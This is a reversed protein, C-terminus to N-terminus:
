LALRTIVGIIGLSLSTRTDKLEYLIKSKKASYSAEVIISLIILAIFFPAIEELMIFSLALAPPTSETEQQGLFLM